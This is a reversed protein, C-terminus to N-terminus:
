VTIDTVFRPRKKLKSIELNSIIWFSFEKLLEELEVM